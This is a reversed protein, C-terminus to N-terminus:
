SFTLILMFYSATKRFFTFQILYHTIPSASAESLREWFLDLFRNAAAAKGELPQFNFSLALHRAVLVISVLCLSHCDIHCWKPLSKGFRPACHLHWSWCLRLFFCCLPYQPFPLGFCALHRPAEPGDEISITSYIGSTRFHLQSTLSM